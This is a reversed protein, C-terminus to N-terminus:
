EAETETQNEGSDETAAPTESETSATEGLILSDDTEKKKSKDKKKKKAKTSEAVTTEATEEVASSEVVETEAEAVDATETELMEETEEQETVMNNVAGSSAAFFAIRDGNASHFGLGDFDFYYRNLLTGDQDLVKRAKETVKLSGIPKATDMDAILLDGDPTYGYVIGLYEGYNDNYLSVAICSKKEAISEHVYRLDQLTNTNITFRYEDATDFVPMKIDTTIDKETSTEVDIRMKRSIAVFGKDPLVGEVFDLVKGTHFYHDHGFLTLDIVEELEQEYLEVVMDGTIKWVKENPVYVMAKHVGDEVSYAHMGEEEVFQAYGNFGCFHYAGSTTKVVSGHAKSQYDKAWLIVNEIAYPSSVKKGNQDDM